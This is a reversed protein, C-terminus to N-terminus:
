WSIHKLIVSTNPCNLTGSSINLYFRVISFRVNLMIYVGYQTYLLDEKQFFLSQLTIM